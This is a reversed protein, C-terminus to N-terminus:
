FFTFDSIMLNINDLYEKTNSELSTVIKQLEPVIDIDTYNLFFRSENHFNNQNNNKNFATARIKSSGCDFYTEFNKNDM